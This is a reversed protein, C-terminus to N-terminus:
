RNKTNKEYVKELKYKLVEHLCTGGNYFRSLYRYSGDTENYKIICMDEDDLETDDIVFIEDGVRILNNYMDYNHDLLQDIEDDYYISEFKIHLTELTKKAWDLYNEGFPPVFKKLTGTHTETHSM